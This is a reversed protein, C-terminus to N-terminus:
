KYGYRNHLERELEHVLVEMREFDRKKKYLGKLEELKSLLLSRTSDELDKDKKLLRPGKKLLRKAARLIEKPKEQM